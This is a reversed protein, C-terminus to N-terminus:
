MYQLANACRALVSSHGPQPFYFQEHWITKILSMGLQIAKSCLGRNRWTLRRIMYLLILMFSKILLEVRFIAPQFCEPRGFTCEEEPTFPIKEGRQKIHYCWDVDEFLM